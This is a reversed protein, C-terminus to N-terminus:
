AKEIGPDLRVPNVEICIVASPFAGLTNGSDRLVNMMGLRVDESPFRTVKVIATGRLRVSDTDASRVILTAAGM